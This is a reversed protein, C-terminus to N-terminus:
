AYLELTTRLMREPSFQERVFRPGEVAARAALAPDDLARLLTQALREPLGPGEDVVLATVNERVAERTGGAATTVVPRGMLQAELHATPLGEVRAAHFFMDALSLAVPVDRTVGPCLVGAETARQLLGQRLPGDGYCVFRVDDRARRVRAATEIWLEPRKTADFRMLGVVIRCDAPLELRARENRVAEEDAPLWASTELGHYLPTVADAPLALWRAYAEGGARTVCATHVAPNRVAYRFLVYDLLTKPWQRWGYVGARHWEVPPISQWAILIRRIPLMAAAAAAYANDSWVHVVDPAIDQLCQRFKLINRAIRRPLLRLLLPADSPLRSPPRVCHLEAHPALADKYYLDEKLAFDSILIHQRYGLAALRAATTVLNREAGGCGLSFLCHAITPPTPHTM